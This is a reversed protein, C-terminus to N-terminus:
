SLAGIEGRQMRELFAGYGLDGSWFRILHGVGISTLTAGSLGDVQYPAGPADAVVKGKIVTLAPRGQDDYLRKGRWLRQWKPNDVEGGLGPTEAHDYFQLGFVTQGDKELALYGYLTSWLGYGYVPLVVKDLDDNEDRALYVLALEPVKRIRAIDEGRELARYATGDALLRSPDVAAFLGSDLRIVRVEIQKFLVEFPISDTYLGAVSLISKYRDLRANEYQLSRLGIAATSVVVSCILCLLVTVTLIKGIRDNSMSM